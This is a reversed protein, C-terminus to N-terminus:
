GPRGASSPSTSAPPTWRVGAAIAGRDIFRCWRHGRLTLFVQDADAPDAPVPRAGAVAALAALTEPWLPCRRAIGTKPRPYDLWGPRVALTTRTLDSCDKQGLGCNLGLLMMARMQVTALGLLAWVDGVPLLKPGRRMRNVRIVRRAPKDFLKGFRAPRDLLEAGMGFRFVTRVM